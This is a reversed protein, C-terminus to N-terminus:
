TKSKPEWYHCTFKGIKMLVKHERQNVQAVLATKAAILIFLLSRASTPFSVDQVLRLLQLTPVALAVACNPNLAQEQLAWRVELLRTAL